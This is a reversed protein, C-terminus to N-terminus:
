APHATVASLTVAQRGMPSALKVLKSMLMKLDAFHTSTAVKSSRLGTLKSNLFL